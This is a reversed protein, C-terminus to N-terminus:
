TATNLLSIWSSRMLSLLIFLFILGYYLRRKKKGAKVTFFHSLLISAPMCAVSLFEGASQRYFLFLAFSAVFFLSLFSLFRRARLSDEQEHLRINVIAISCLFLAYLVYLWDATQLGGLADAAPLSPRPLAAFPRPLAAYDSTWVCWGVLFWYVVGVGTLSALFTRLSMAKFQYMGGWFLPLFWLIRAWFLSGLGILFAANFANRTSGAERYSALLQYFAPILFFVGPSAANLPFFDPNSSVLLLYLFFPLLTKERIIALMYNARHILFGGGATLAMGALYAFPKNPLMGAVLNWLPAGSARGLAPYGASVLYGGAWLFLSVGLLLAYNFPTDTKYPRDYGYRKTKM